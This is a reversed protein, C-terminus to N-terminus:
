LSPQEVVDMRVRVVKVYTAMEPMEPNVFFHDFGEDSTLFRIDLSGM